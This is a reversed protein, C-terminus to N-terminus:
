PQVEPKIARMGLNIWGHDDGRVHARPLREISEFGAARLCNELHRPSFLARHWNPSTPNGDGDGYTFIRGAAWICPDRQPNFRYWGDNITHDEGGGGVWGGSEAEVFARCIKLGDPVWVELVGGPALIRRWERLADVTQYWPIHELIHSAYILAFTGDPFPLAKAADGIHDVNPGPVINLTEFGPIRSAGPGIELKRGAVEGPTPPPTIVRSLYVGSQGDPEAASGPSDIRLGAAAVLRSFSQTPSCACFARGRPALLRAVERLYFEADATSLDTFTPGLNIVDFVEDDFPLPPGAPAAKGADLHTFRFSPHGAPSGAGLHRRCWDIADASADIGEYRKVGAAGHNAEPWLERSRALVGIALRGHGCGLDLLASHPALGCREILRDAARKAAALYSGDDQAPDPRLHHAPLTVGQHVVADAAPVAPMLARSPIARAPPESM